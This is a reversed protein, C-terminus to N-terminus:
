QVRRANDPVSAPIPEGVTMAGAGRRVVVRALADEWEQAADPEVAPRGLFSARLLWREGNVGVIRSPQIAPSGDAQKVPVQCVLETGFRGEREEAQGGRKTIDALIQPRVTDWLNGNRPAAFAQLEIAGDAGALLVSRVTGSTEDVQLRLEHEGPAVLMAGLDVREVGDNPMQSEDFPGALGAAPDPAPDADVAEAAPVPEAKRRFKM